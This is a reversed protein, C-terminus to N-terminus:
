LLAWDWNFSSTRIFYRVTYNEEPAWSLSFAWLERDFINSVNKVSIGVPCQHWLQCFPFSFLPPFNERLPVQLFIQSFILTYQIYMSITRYIDRLYLWLLWALMDDNDCITSQSEHTEIFDSKLEPTCYICYQANGSSPELITWSWNFAVSSCSLAAM